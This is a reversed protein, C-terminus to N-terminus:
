WRKEKRRKKGLDEKLWSSRFNEEHMANDERIVDGEEGRM